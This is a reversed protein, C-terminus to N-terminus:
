ATPLMRFGPEVPDASVHTELDAVAAGAPGEMCLALMEEVVDDHGMFMAEVSGDRRNRVWGSLGLERATEEAWARYGVGQVRGSIVVRVTHSM